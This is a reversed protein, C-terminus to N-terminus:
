TSQRWRRAMFYAITGAIVGGIVVGWDASLTQAYPVVLGGAAISLLISARRSSTALLLIYLPTVFILIRLIEPSVSGALTMGLILGAAGLFLTGICYAVFYQTLLRRDEIEQKVILLALYANVSNIQAYFFHGSKVKQSTRIVPITAITVPLVRVNAIGTAIVLALISIDTNYLDVYAILGPMSWLGAMIMLAHLMSLSAESALTGFGVM